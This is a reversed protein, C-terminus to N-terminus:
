LQSVNETFKHPHVSEDNWAACEYGMESVAMDGSYEIKECLISKPQYCFRPDGCSRKSKPAECLVRASFGRETPAALKFSGRVMKIFKAQRRAIAGSKFKRLSIM